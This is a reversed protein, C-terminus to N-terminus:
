SRFSDYRDLFSSFKIRVIRHAACYQNIPKCANSNQFSIWLSFSLLFFQFWLYFSIIAYRTVVCKILRHGIVRSSEVVVSYLFRNWGSFFTYQFIGFLRFFTWSKKTTTTRNQILVGPLTRATCNSMKSLNGMSWKLWLARHVETPKPLFSVFVRFSFVDRPIHRGNGGAVMYWCRVSRACDASAAFYPILLRSESYFFKKEKIKKKEDLKEIDNPEAPTSEGSLPPAFLSFVVQICDDFFKSQNSSM